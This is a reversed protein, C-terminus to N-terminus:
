QSSKPQQPLTTIAYEIQVVRIDMTFMQPYTDKTHTPHGLSELREEIADLREEFSANPNVTAPQFGPSLVTMRKEANELREGETLAQFPLDTNTQAEQPQNENKIEYDMLAIANRADISDPRLELTKQFDAKAGDLDSNRSKANGRQYYADVYDPKLQIAKTFDAIAGDVDWKNQEAMGRHYFVEEPPLAPQKLMHNIINQANIIKGVVATLADSLAQPDTSNHATLYGPLDLFPDSNLPCDNDGNDLKNLWDSFELTATSSAVTSHADPQRGAVYAQV